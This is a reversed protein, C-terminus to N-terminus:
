GWSRLLPDNKVDTPIVDRYKYPSKIEVLGIGHCNCSVFGDQSCGPHFGLNPSIQFGANFFKMNQHNIILYEIYSKITDDEHEKWWKLPPNNLNFASMPNCISKILSVSPHHINTHMVDHVKTGTIRGARYDYWQIYNAQM